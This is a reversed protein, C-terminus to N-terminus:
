LVAKVPHGSNTPLIVEGRGLIGLSRIVYFIVPTLVVLELRFMFNFLFYLLFVVELPSAVKSFSIFLVFILIGVGLLGFYFIIENIFFHLHFYKGNDHEISSFAGETYISPDPFESFTLYGWFGRGFLLSFMDAKEGFVLNMFTSIRVSASSGVEGAGDFLSSFFSIKHLMYVKIDSPIHDGILFLSSVFILFIPVAFKPVSFAVALLALAYLVVETRSVSLHLGLVLVWVFLWILKKISIPRRSLVVVMLASLFVGTFTYVGPDKAPSVFYIPIRIVASSLASILMGRWVIDLYNHKNNLELVLVGALFVFVILKLPAKNIGPLSGHNIIFAVSGVLGLFFMCASLSLFPKYSVVRKVSFWYSVSRVFLCSFWLDPYYSANLPTELAITRDVFVTKELGSFCILVPIVFSWFLKFHLSVAILLTAVIFDLGAVEILPLSSFFLVLTLFLSWQRKAEGASYVRSSMSASM